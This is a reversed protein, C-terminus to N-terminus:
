STEVTVWVFVQLCWPKLLLWHIYSYIRENMWVEICIVQLDYFIMWHIYVVVYVDDVVDDTTAAAVNVVIIIFNVFKNNNIIITEM